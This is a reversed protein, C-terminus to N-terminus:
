PRLIPMHPYVDTGKGPRVYKYSSVASCYKTKTDKGGSLEPFTM